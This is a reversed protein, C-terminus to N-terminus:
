IELTPFIKPPRSGLRALVVSAAQSALQGAAELSLGRILSFLIGAAYMDGCGSSDVVGSVTWAPVTVITRGSVLISGDRGRTVVSLVPLATLVKRLDPLSSVEFLSMFERENGFVVDVEDGVLDLLFPRNQGVRRENGLSLAVLM